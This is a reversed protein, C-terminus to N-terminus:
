HQEQEGAGGKKSEEFLKRLDEIGFKGRGRRQAERKVKAQEMEEIRECIVSPDGFMMWRPLEKVVMDVQKAALDRWNRGM